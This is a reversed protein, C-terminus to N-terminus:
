IQTDLISGYYVVTPATFGRVSILSLIPQLLEEILSNLGVSCTSWHISVSASDAKPDRLGALILLM